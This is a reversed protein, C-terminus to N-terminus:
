GQSPTDDKTCARVLEFHLNSVRKKDEEKRTYAVDRLADSLRRAISAIERDDSM